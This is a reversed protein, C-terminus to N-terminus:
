LGKLTEVLRLILERTPLALFDNPAEPQVAPSAESGGEDAAGNGDPALRKSLRLAPGSPATREFRKSLGHSGHPPGAPAPLKSLRPRPAAPKARAKSGPKHTTM